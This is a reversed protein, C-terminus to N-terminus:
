RSRYQEDIWNRYSSDMVSKWWEMNDLYWRITRRLGEEFDVKPAFELESRARKLGGWVADKHAAGIEVISGVYM